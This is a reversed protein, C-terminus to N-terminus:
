RASGPEVHNKQQDGAEQFGDRFALGGPKPLLDGYMQSGNNNAFYEGFGQFSLKVVFAPRASFDFLTPAFSLFSFAGDVTSLLPPFLCTVVPFTVFRM